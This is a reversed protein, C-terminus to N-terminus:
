DEVITLTIFRCTNVSRHVSRGETRRSMVVNHPSLPPLLLCILRYSLINGKPNPHTLSLICVFLHRNLQLIIAQILYWTPHRDNSSLSFLICRAAENLSNLTTKTQTRSTRGQKTRSLSFLQHCFLRIFFNYGALSMPGVEPLSTFPPHQVTLFASPM